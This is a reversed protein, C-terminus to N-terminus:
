NNSNNMKNEPMFSVFVRRSLFCIIEIKKHFIIETQMRYVFDFLFISIMFFNIVLIIIRIM